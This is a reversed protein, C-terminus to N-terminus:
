ITETHKYVCMEYAEPAYIEFLLSYLKFVETYYKQTFVFINTSKWIQMLTGKLMMKVSTNMLLKGLFWWKMGEVQNEKQSSIVMQFSFQSQFLLVLSESTGQLFINKFIECFEYSFWNMLFWHQLRKKLLNAPQAQLKIWFSVKACINEQLSRM